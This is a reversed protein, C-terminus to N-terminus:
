IWKGLLVAVNCQKFVARNSLQCRAVLDANNVMQKHPKSISQKAERAKNIDKATLGGVSSHDQHYSRTGTFQKTPDKFHEFVNSKGVSHYSTRASDVSGDTFTNDSQEMQTVGESYGEESSFAYKDDMGTSFDTVSQQQGTFEQM